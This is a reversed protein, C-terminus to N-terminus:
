QVALEAQVKVRLENDEELRKLLVRMVVAAKVENELAFSKLMKHQEKDLDLTFRVTTKEEKENELVDDPEVHRTVHSRERQAAKKMRDKLDSM